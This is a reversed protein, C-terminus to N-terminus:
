GFADFNGPGVYGAFLTHQLELAESLRHSAAPKVNQDVIRSHHESDTEWLGKM